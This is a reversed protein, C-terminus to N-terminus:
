SDDAIGSRYFGRKWRDYVNIIEKKRTQAYTVCEGTGSHIYGNYNALITDSDDVIAHNRVFMLSQEYKKGFVREVTANERLTQWRYRSLKPWAKAQEEFPIYAGYPIGLRWCATACAQDWGLAMGVIVARPKLKPIEESALDVLLEFAEESYGGLDPPRHGTVGLIM